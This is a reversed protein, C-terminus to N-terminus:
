SKRYVMLSSITTAGITLTSHLHLTNPDPRTYVEKVNGTYPEGWMIDNQIGDDVLTTTATQQGSRHDRRGMRTEGAYRFHEVEKFIFAPVGKVLYKLDMGQDDTHVEMGWMGYKAVYSYASKMHFLEIQKYYAAMDSAAEDKKWTGSLDPAENAQQQDAADTSEGQHKSHDAETDRVAADSKFLWSTWGKGGSAKASPATVESM